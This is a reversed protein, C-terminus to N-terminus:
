SLEAVAARDLGVVAQGHEGALADHRRLLPDLGLMRTSVHETVKAPVV